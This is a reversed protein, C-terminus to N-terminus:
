SDAFKKQSPGSQLYKLSQLGCVTEAAYEDTNKTCCKFFFFSFCAISLNLGHAMTQWGRSQFIRIKSTMAVFRFAKASEEM